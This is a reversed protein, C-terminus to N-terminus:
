KKVWCVNWYPHIMVFVKHGVSIEENSIVDSEWDPMRKVTGDIIDNCLDIWRLESLHVIFLGGDSFNINMPRMKFINLEEVIM